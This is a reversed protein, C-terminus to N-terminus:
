QTNAVQAAGLFPALTAVRSPMVFFDQPVGIVVPSLPTAHPEFHAQREAPSLDLAATTLQAAIPGAMAVVIQKFM